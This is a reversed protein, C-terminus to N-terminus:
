TLYIRPVRGTITSVIEYNITNLTTAMEDATIEEDKQRGLIVVENGVAADPIHGVDILTLDMCIRGVVPARQGGVLMHGRSSLLRNLGDAYGVAVTALTTPAPTMHTIGYSVGFGAPVQKLHIVKSKWQLVPQLEVKNRQVDTSPYLGYTAIGPRVMDLHSDPMDILAASNATHILPFELGRARLGAALEMFRQLQREAYTKDAHDATAFHTFLGELELGGLRAIAEVDGLRRAAPINDPDDSASETTLLGLRGMGTDVKIHVQLKKSDEVARAAFAEAMPHSFVTQTLDHAILDPAREPPTFGFILIPADIGAARLELAEELRAVGLADAGSQLAVRSVEVAGHGYGNAKVVAMFRAGASSLGKLAQINHGYASLDVEAWVQPDSVM